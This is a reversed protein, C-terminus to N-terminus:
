IWVYGESTVTMGYGGEEPVPFSDYTFDDYNVRVLWSQQPNSGQLQSLWVNNDSDVAAGYFGYWGPWPQPLDPIPVEQIVDGTQGDLLAVVATGPAWDSWATWVHVDEWECTQDNFTGNTWAMPRNDGHPLDKFWALCEDEGWPMIDGGNQSTQIGPIGNTDACDEPAGHIKAVGGLRNAVAVDGFRNVSTRSPSGASDARVIYRGLEVGTETDIKSVTGQGSNAIWILKRVPGLEGEGNCNPGTDTDTTDTTETTDSDSSSESSGSDSSSGTDDTTSGSSSSTGQDGASESDGDATTGIEDTGALSDGRSDNSSDDGCATALSLATLVPLLRTRM